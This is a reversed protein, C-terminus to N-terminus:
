FEVPFSTQLSFNYKTFKPTSARSGAAPEARTEIVWEQDVGCIRVSVCVCETVSEEGM